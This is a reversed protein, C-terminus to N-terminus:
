MEQTVGGFITFVPANELASIVENGEHMRMGISGLVLSESVNKKNMMIVMGSQRFFDVNLKRHFIM